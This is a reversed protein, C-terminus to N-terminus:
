RCFCWVWSGFLLGKPKMNVNHADPCACLRDGNIDIPAAIICRVLECSTVRMYIVRDMFMKSYEVNFAACFQSLYKPSPSIVINM